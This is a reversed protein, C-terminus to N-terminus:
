GQPLINAAANANQGMVEEFSKTEEKVKALELVKDVVQEELVVQEIEAMRAKHQYFMKVVEEPNEYISAMKEVMAKVRTPDVKLQYQEIIRNMILGLAVRKQAEEKFMDLPLATANKQGWSKMREAAAKSLRESEEHVLASPLEVTNHQRLGEIVQDKVKAKLAFDLEREMNARVEKKLAELSDLQFLKAFADNVTPLKSTEVEKVKIKFVVPAGALDKVHYDKPFSIKMDFEDGQKKGILAEEFGPIMMKSGIIIRFDKANGGPFAEKGKFGEFDILLRDGEKAAEDSKKWETHQKRLNELMTKEDKDTVNAKIRVIELDALGKVEFEPFVELEIKFSLEGKKVLAEDVTIKPLGAPKLKHEVIVKGYAAEIAKSIVEGRISEGFQQRVVQLPVKGPRFGPLRAQGAVEQVKKDMASDIEVKPVDVGFVRKIGENVELKVAM